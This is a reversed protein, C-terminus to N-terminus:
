NFYSSIFLSDQFGGFLLSGENAYLVAALAPNLTFSGSSLPYSLGGFGTFLLPFGGGEIMSGTVFDVSSFISALLIMMIIVLIKSFNNKMKKRM